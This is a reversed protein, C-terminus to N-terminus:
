SRDMTTEDKDTEIITIEGKSWKVWFLIIGIASYEEHVETPTEYILAKRFRLKDEGRDAVIDEKYIGLLRLKEMLLADIQKNADHLFQQLQNDM